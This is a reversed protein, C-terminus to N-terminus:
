MFCYKENKRIESRNQILVSFGSSNTRRKDGGPKCYKGVALSGEMKISQLGQWIKLSEKNLSQKKHDNSKRGTDESISIKRLAGVICKLVSDIRSALWLNYLGQNAGLM